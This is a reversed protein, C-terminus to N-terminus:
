LNKQKRNMIGAKCSEVDVGNASMFTSSIESDSFLESDGIQKGRMLGREKRSGSEEVSKRRDASNNWSRYLLRRVESPVFIDEDGVLSQLTHERREAKSRGM